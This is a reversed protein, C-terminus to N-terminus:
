QIVRGSGNTKSSVSKAKLNTVDIDGSGSIKIDVDGADGSLTCNGSGSVKVKVDGLSGGAEIDGAGSIKIDVDGADGSLTCNGSGSVRVRVDGLSGGAEIDGAGNLTIDLNGTEGNLTCNGAGNVEIDVAQAKLEQIKIDGAGDLSLGLSDAVMSAPAEFDVAGNLDVARLKPCSVKITIDKKLNKFRKHDTYIKLEGSQDVEVIILDMLNDPADITLNKTGDTYIMDGPIDCEISSFDTTEFTKTIYNASGSVSEGFLNSDVSFFKCSPLALLSAAALITLAKM